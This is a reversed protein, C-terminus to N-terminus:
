AFAGSDPRLRGPRSRPPRFRVLAKLNKRKEAIVVMWVLAARGLVPGPARGREVLGIGSSITGGELGGGAAGGGGGAAAEAPSGVAGLDVDFVLHALRIEVVRHRHDDAAREGVHAVAQLRHVAADEVRHVGLPQVVVLAVGLAGAHDALHQLLVVRVAVGRDVVGQDAQHLVPVQAVREDVALAVEARDVAVRGGGVAVGLRPQLLQGVPQEGVDVLLGDLPPGVEVVGGDLRQDHRGAEGVQEDVAGGADGDAHGGVDRRVVHALDDVRHDVQDVVRLGRHRLQHAEDGARVEGGGADDQPAVPDPLGVLLPAAVDLHPGAGADLDVGLGLALRDDDGLDGVLDVLGPQDLVDGLQDALLPQLPDAVEAVLRRRSPIRMTMSSFRSAQGLHHEVVEVGVGGHLRAEAHDQQGDVGALRADEGQLLHQLPEDGVAAVHHGPAGAELELLGPGALVDQEAELDGEVVEVLDDLEDALGAVALDGAEAEDLAERRESRCALAMRSICSWRRVPRSRWFIM